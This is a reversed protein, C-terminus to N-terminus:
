GVGYKEPNEIRHNLLRGVESFKRSMETAEQSDIYGFAKSFEIWVQSEANEMDADTMKAVFHARYKVKRFGEVINVCVSRSSRRLQDTLSYKEESPFGQTIAHIRLALEFSKQYVLLDKYTGM